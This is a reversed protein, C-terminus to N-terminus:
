VARMEIRLLRVVIKSILYGIARAGTTTALAPALLMLWVM